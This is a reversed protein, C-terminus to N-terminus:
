NQTLFSLFDKHSNFVLDAKSFDINQNYKNKIIICKMGIKKAANLGKEADEIVLCNEPNSKLMGSAYIFIDPEPKSRLGNKRGVINKINLNNHKLIEFVDNEFSNSAISSKYNNEFFYNIIKKIEPFIKIEGNKCFESYNIKREEYIKKQEEISFGLNYREVESPVGIGLSTFYIWYEEKKISHGRKKFAKNYSLYFYYESDVIIGDFDYLVTDISNLIKKLKNKM